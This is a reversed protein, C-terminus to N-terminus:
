DDNDNYPYGNIRRDEERIEKKGDQREKAKAKKTSKHPPIDLSWDQAKVSYHAVRKKDRRAM